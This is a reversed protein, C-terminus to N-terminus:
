LANRAADPAALLDAVEDLLAEDFRHRWIGAQPANHRELGVARIFLYLCEGLHQQRRYGRLRQRLYRELAVTYLLAQFVYHHAQMADELAEGQYHELTAGLHNSKYDLLHYRGHHQFILDIKGHMLGKITRATTPVLGPRGHRACVDQWSAMDVRPLVFSFGMEARLAGIELDFLCPGPEPRLGLPTELVAQLRQALAVVLPPWSATSSLATSEVPLVGHELLCGWVLELQSTLPANPLRTELIAHVANGFAAGRVAALAQLGPHPHAEVHRLPRILHTAEPLMSTFSHRAETPYEPPPPLCRAFGRPFASPDDPVYRGVHIHQWGDIWAIHPTKERLAQSLLRADGAHEDGLLAMTMRQLMVELPSCEQKSTARKTSGDQGRRPSLAYIICAYRARTMAVYLVRFREDQEEKAALAQAAPSWDITRMPSGPLSVLYLGSSGNRTTRAVRCWMLPLFVVPFELGKSAHLTMLQVKDGDSEIRLRAADALADGASVGHNRSARLWALLEEEGPHHVAQQALLEGLHRLDTLVREGQPTALYRQAIRALLAEVVYQIGCERWDRRWGRFVSVLELWDKSGEEPQCQELLQGYSWGWLRTAAAARMAAMDSEHAIAYLVVQLEQAVATAFVSDRTTTICPVGQAHLLDRLETINDKTPLLVAIDGPTIKSGKIRHRGSQVMATIQEACCRLAETRREALPRQDEEAELHIALPQLCPTGDITYEKYDKYSSAQLYCIPHQREASLAPGGAAYFQNCAAVLMSTARHNTTLALREDPPIEQAARQYANIDGGRFRYIAQKPDGIMVLRGRPTGDAHSYIADLIGYQVGDTDQFEDVLAVPWANFLADALPQSEVQSSWSTREKTLAGHVQELLVDFTLQRRVQLRRHRENRARQTLVFWFHRRRATRLRTILTLCRQCFLWGDEIEAAHERGAKTLLTSRNPPLDTFDQLKECLEQEPLDVQQCHGHAAAGLLEDIFGAVRVLVSKKYFNNSRQWWQEQSALARLRLPYGAMWALEESSPELDQPSVPEIVVGPSLCKRLGDGLKELSDLEGMLGAQQAAQVLVDHEDGQQLCRWLDASVEWSLADESIMEGLFFPVACAFPHDVLIRRCLSHLTGLPAVDMGALARELLTADQLRNRTPHAEDTWRAQLWQMDEDVAHVQPTHCLALAQELKSRLRERLEEAAADTFTTVVIQRPAFREELLLRLYLAAITWTKGTGASAEILSRGGPLLPLTQWTPTM